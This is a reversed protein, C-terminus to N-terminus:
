GLYLADRPIHQRVGYDLLEGEPEFWLRLSEANNEDVLELPHEIGRM